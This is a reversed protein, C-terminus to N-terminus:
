ELLYNRELEKRVIIEDAFRVQNRKDIDDNLLQLRRQFEAVLQLMDSLIGIM